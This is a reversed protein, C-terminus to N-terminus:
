IDTPKKIKKIKQILEQAQSIFDPISIKKFRMDGSLDLYSDFLEGSKDRERAEEIEEYSFGFLMFDIDSSVYHRDTDYLRLLLTCVEEFEIWFNFWQKLQEENFPKQNLVHEIAQYLISTDVPATRKLLSNTVTFFQCTGLIEMALKFVKRDEVKRMHEVDLIMYQTWTPYKAIEEAVEKKRPIQEVVLM